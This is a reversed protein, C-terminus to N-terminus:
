SDFQILTQQSESLPVGLYIVTVDYKVIDKWFSSVSFKKKIITKSGAFFAGATSLQAGSSHYLPLYSYIVDESTLDFIICGGIMAFLQRFCYSIWIQVKIYPMFYLFILYNSLYYKTMNTINSVKYSFHCCSETFRYRFLKCNVFLYVIQHPM